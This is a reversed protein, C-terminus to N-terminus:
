VEVVISEVLGLSLIDSWVEAKYECVTLSLMSHVALLGLM